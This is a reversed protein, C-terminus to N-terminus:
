PDTPAAVVGGEGPPVSARHHMHGQPGPRSSMHVAICAEQLGAASRRTLLGALTPWGQPSRPAGPRTPARLPGTSTRSLGPEVQRKPCRRLVQFTHIKSLDPTRPKWTGRHPYLMDLREAAEQVGEILHCTGLSTTVILAGGVVAVKPNLKKWIEKLKEM